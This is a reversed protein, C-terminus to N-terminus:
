EADARKLRTGAFRTVLPGLLCTLLIVIIIADVIESGILDM